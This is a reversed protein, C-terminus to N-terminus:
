DLSGTYTADVFNFIVVTAAHGAPLPDRWHQLLKGRYFLADGLGLDVARGVGDVGALFLPWPSAGEPEPVYDLLVNLSLECPDRDRHPAFAAGEHYSFFLSFAPQMPKGAMESALPALRRHLWRALAENHAWYRLDVHVDGFLLHGEAVLARYYRRLAALQVPHILGPLIAQHERSFRARVEARRDARSRRRVGADEPDVLVGAAELSAVQEPSLEAPPRGGPTLARFLARDHEPVSIVGPAEAAAHDHFAWACGGAFPSVEPRAVAVDRLWLSSRRSRAEDPPRLDDLYRLSPEVRLRERPAPMLGRDLGRALEWPPDEAPCRFRVPAPADGRRVLLGIDVLRARAADDLDARVEGSLSALRAALEFLVPERDREIRTMCLGHGKIPAVVSIARLEGDRRRRVLEVEPNLVLADDDPARSEAPPM